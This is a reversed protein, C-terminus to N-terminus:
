AKGFRLLNKVFNLSDGGKGSIFLIVIGVLIVLFVVALVIKGVEEVAGNKNFFLRKLNM